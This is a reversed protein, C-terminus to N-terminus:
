KTKDIYKLVKQMKARDVVEHVEGFLTQGRKELVDLERDIKQYMALVKQYRKIKEVVTLPSLKQAM